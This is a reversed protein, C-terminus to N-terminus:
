LAGDSKSIYVSLIGILYGAGTRRHALPSEIPVIYSPLNISRFDTALQAHMSM